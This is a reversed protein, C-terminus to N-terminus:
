KIHVGNEDFECVQGDIVHTGTVMCGDEDFYYWNESIYIWSDTVMNGCDDIYYKKGDKYQWGFESDYLEDNNGGNDYYDSGEYEYGGDHDSEDDVRDPCVDVLKNYTAHSVAASGGFVHGYEIVDSRASVVSFISSADPGDVLILVSGYVGCFAAGSLADWYGSTTAVGINNASMGEKDIGYDAVMAATEIATAGNFRGLVKIGAGKIANEVNKSVASTGGVIYVGDINGKMASLTEATISNAGNTLFIPMHKAYSIPAAALADWYGGNTCVFATRSWKGGTTSPAKKFIDIATGVADKGSCRVVKAGSVAAAQNAVSQSVAATGGCVVIRQPSLWRLENNTQPSLSKGNTMLVPAKVMGAVGAATLADWYGDVTALVVTGGSTFQGAEVIQAMTDLATEGYHRSWVNSDMDYPDDAPVVAAPASAGSYSGPSSPSGPSGPGGSGHVCKDCPKAGRSIAASESMATYYRMGSCNSKYHYINNRSVYVTGAQTSLWTDGAQLSVPSSSSASPQDPNAETGEVAYSSPANLLILLAMLFAAIAVLCFRLTKPHNASRAM